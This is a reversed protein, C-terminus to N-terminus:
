ATKYKSIHMEVVAGNNNYVDLKAKLKQAFARIMKMGFSKGTKIDLGAPFGNGNDSVMLHLQGAQEELMINLEGNQKEKFAYKFSNSVLENLVLGLPIMTDVDLNLEDIAVNIKVKDNTINYSDCLTQLLNGVYEKLKIGKINGESYLNQHILAMSQVRNKGEKVAEHAQADSISHSQLDLLSSVVQLNNKVRHHIEKMLVELDTAQKQIIRNKKKQKRYLVLISIGSLLLLAAGGALMWKTRKEKILQIAKLDNERDLAANLATQKEKEKNVSLSYAQESKVISDMLQNERGLATRQMIQQRLLLAGMKKDALLLAIEKEKLMNNSSLLAIEKEKKETEFRTELEYLQERKQLALMSDKLIFLVDAMANAEPHKGAKELLGFKIKKIEYISHINGTKEALGESEDALKLAEEYKKKKESNKILYHNAMLAQNPMGAEMSKEKVSKMFETNTTLKSDTIGMLIDRLPDKINKKRREEVLANYEEILPGAKEPKNKALYFNLYVTLLYIHDPKGEKNATLKYSQGYYKEAEANDDMQNYLEGLSMYVLYNRYPNKEANYKEAARYYYVASDKKGSLMHLSAQLLIGNIKVEYNDAKELYPAAAQIYETATKYKGQVNYLNAYDVYCRAIINDSGSQLALGLAKDLFHKASDYKLKFMLQRATLDLSDALLAERNVTLTQSSNNQAVVFAAQLIIFILIFIRQKM